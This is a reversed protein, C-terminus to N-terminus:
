FNPHLMRFLHAWSGAMHGKVVQRHLPSAVVQLPLDHTHPATSLRRVVARVVSFVFRRVTPRLARSKLTLASRTSNALAHLPLRWAV